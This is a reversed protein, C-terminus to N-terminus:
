ITWKSWWEVLHKRFVKNGSVDLKREERLTRLHIWFNGSHSGPAFSCTTCSEVVLHLKIAIKHMLRTLKAVMVRQM